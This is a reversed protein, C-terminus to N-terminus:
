KDKTKDLKITEKIITVTAPDNFGSNLADQKSVGIAQYTEKIIRTVTYYKKEQEM